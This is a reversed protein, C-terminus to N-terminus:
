VFMQQLLGNKFTQLKAVQDAVAQIKTDMTSLANAIKAQEDPHPVSVSLKVVESKGIELFTSGSAKRLIAKKNNLLWYYLFENNHAGKVILSQFGQNTCCEATAIGVDGVTARTSLLLAGIPLLKASSNKLGEASITRRSRQLYKSKIETPTFWIIDGGWYEPIFSEPTGGGVIQALDGLQKEQWDPFATGDDRTFRLQQSFLKQMLGAKFRVLAAQKAVLAALKADVAGLFAAIKQQDPLSPINVPWKFWEDLKFIMKEIHVGISSHFCTQQFYVSHSLYQLFALDINPKCRLVSYENSVVAGDFESSVVGCAGHVIQRKSILFDGEAIKFQSTVSIQSGRLRGRSEIGGRSRKVTVLDYTEDPQLHVRRQVQELLEGFRYSKWGPKPPKLKPLGPQVSKPFTRQLVEMVDDSM